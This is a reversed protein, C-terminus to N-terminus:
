AKPQTLSSLQGVWSEFGAMAVRYVQRILVTVVFLLREYHRSPEPRVSKICVLFEEGFRTSTAKGCM